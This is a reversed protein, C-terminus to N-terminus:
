GGARVATSNIDTWVRMGGEERLSKRSHTVGLARRVRTQGTQKVTGDEKTWVETSTAKGM